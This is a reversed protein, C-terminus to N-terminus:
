KAYHERIGDINVCITLNGGKQHNFLMEGCLLICIYTHTHTYRMYVCTDEKGMKRNISLM